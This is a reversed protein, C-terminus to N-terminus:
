TSREELSGLYWRVYDTPLRTCQALWEPSLNEQSVCEGIAQRIQQMQRERREASRVAGGAKKRRVVPMPRVGGGVASSRPSDPSSRGLLHELGNAVAWVRTARVDMRLRRVLTPADVYKHRPRLVTRLEIRVQKGYLDGEFDLLHAELLRVADTDYFTPGNGVSVATVYIPGDASHGVQLTGAYVGDLGAADPFQVNATPFGLDRSRRDGQQVRGEVVAILKSMHSDM